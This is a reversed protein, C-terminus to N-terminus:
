RQREHAAIGVSGCLRSMVSKEGRPKPASVRLVFLLAGTFAVAAPRESSNWDTLRRSLELASDNMSEKAMEVSVPSRSLVLSGPVLTENPFRSDLVSRMKTM